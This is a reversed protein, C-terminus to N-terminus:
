RAAGGAPVVACETLGQRASLRAEIDIVADDHDSTAPDLIWVHNDYPRFGLSAWTRRSHHPAPDPSAVFPAVAILGPEACLWQLMRSVLLRGIGGRGRWAPALVVHGILVVQSGAATVSGDLREALRGCGSGDPGAFLAGFAAFGTHSRLEGVVDGANQLDVLLGGAEFFTGTLGGDAARYEALFMGAADVREASSLSVIAEGSWVAVGSSNLTDGTLSATTGVTM